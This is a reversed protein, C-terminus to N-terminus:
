REWIKLRIGSIPQLREVQLEATAGAYNVVAGGGANNSVTGSGTIILKGKNSITDKYSGVVATDGNSLTAKGLNLTINQGEAILVCEKADKLLKIETEETKAATIAEALTDYHTTGIAATHVTCGDGNECEETQAAFAMGPLLLTALALVLLFATARSAMSQKMFDSGKYFLQSFHYAGWM